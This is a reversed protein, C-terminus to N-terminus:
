AKVGKKAAHRVATTVVIALGILITLVSAAILLKNGGTAPLSAVGLVTPTTGNQYM